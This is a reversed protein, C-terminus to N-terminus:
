KSALQDPDVHKLFQVYRIMDLPKYCPLPSPMCMFLNIKMSLFLFTGVKYM